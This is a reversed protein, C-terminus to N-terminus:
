LIRFLEPQLNELLGSLQRNVTGTWHCDGQSNMKGGTGDINDTATHRDKMAGSGESTTSHGIKNVIMGM